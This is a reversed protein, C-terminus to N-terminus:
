YAGRSLHARLELGLVNREGHGQRGPQGAHQGVVVAHLLHQEVQQVIRQVVRRRAPGDTDLGGRGAGRHADGHDVIADADGRLVQRVDEGAKIPHVLRARARRAARADPQGNRAPQGLRV